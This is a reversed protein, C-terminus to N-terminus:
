NGTTPAPVSDDSAPATGAADPTTGAAEPTATNGAAAAAMAEGLRLEFVQRESSGEPSLDILRQYIELAGAPNGRQLRIRAVNDLADQQIYLFNSNEGLRLFVEEARHPEQAAEHAFALLYAANAGYESNVDRATSEVTAIADQARGAELYARGLMLRVEGAQPTGGFDDLFQELAPIAAQPDGSLAAARVLTLQGAAQEATSRRNMVFLLTAAILVAAIIGGIILKQSHQKAWVTTELVGAVFADDPESDRHVRRATPHRTM